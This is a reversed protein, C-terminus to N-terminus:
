TTPHTATVPSLDSYDNLVERLEKLFDRTDAYYNPFAQKLETIEDVAVLVSKREPNIRGEAEAVAYAASAEALYEPRFPTMQLTRESTDVTLLYQAGELSMTNAVAITWGALLHPVRLAKWLTRLEETLEADSNPTEPVAPSKEKKAFIASALAFFRSWSQSGQGLKMKENAFLDVTEVATAWAHQLTSRIQMEIRKGCWSAHAPNKSYYQVAIHIGRYGDPKPKEIYDYLRPKFPGNAVFIKELRAVLRPVEGIGWLVARCGAIDNMQILDMQPKRRLKLGISEMRKLRGSTFAYRNVLRANRTLVTHVARLPYSHSARWESVIEYAEVVDEAILRSSLVEGARNIQKKSLSSATLTQEAQSPEIGLDLTSFEEIQQSVRAEGGYGHYV